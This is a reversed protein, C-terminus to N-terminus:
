AQEAGAHPAQTARARALLDYLVGLRLAGQAFEMRTLGFEDFVAGMIALSGPLVPLWDAPLGRLDLRACDGARLLARKLAHLGERTIIGGGSLGNRELVQALAQATGSSGVAQDWGTARYRRAVGRMRQRAAREAREMGNVDVTGHPFWGVSFGVCGARVSALEVPQLGRGIILETSGGGIDVVLRRRTEAAPAARAVGLYILRAEEDGAIVEIPCGLASQAQTLFDAANKAVRLAHTAVARVALPARAHLREGYHRLAQLARHQATADLLGDPRLGAALRVTEKFSDQVEIHEGRVRGMELRFSNSGLDVAAILQDNM